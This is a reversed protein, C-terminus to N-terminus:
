TSLAALIRDEDAKLDSRLNSSVIRAWNAYQDLHKKTVVKICCGVYQPIHAAFLFESVEVEKLILEGDTQLRCEFLPSDVVIVPFALSAIQNSDKRYKGSVGACAKLVNMAATYAPDAGDSLAQRFGYGGASSRTIFEMTKLDPMKQSLAKRAPDSMLAFASLCNYNEMAHDSTLVVWPKSSSKCEVVFSIEVAGIWDPDSALVDIERGKDTEPDAYTSSQRVEFGARRFSEAATMELPFGTKELWKLVKEHFM